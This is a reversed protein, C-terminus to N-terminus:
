RRCSNMMVRHAVPHPTAIVEVDLPGLAAGTAPANRDPTRSASFHSGSNYAYCLVGSRARTKCACSAHPLSKAVAM